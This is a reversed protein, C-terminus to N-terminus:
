RESPMVPDTLGNMKFATKRMFCPGCTGCHEEGGSYCSWSLEFPANVEAGLAVIEHKMLTGLPQEFEIRTYPKVAYPVLDQWRNIFEQENDPYGGGSEELNNGLVIKTFGHAESYAVALAMMVTNRAPVWEHGYEAGAAGDFGTVIDRSDDTLSSTAQEKFFSTSVLELPVDLVESLQKVSEYERSQAKAGYLFHLLTVSDGRHKCFAAAVTSDLGGSCVVLTKPPQYEYLSGCEVVGFASDVFGWTYPEIVTPAAEFIGNDFLYAKQSAVIVTRGDDVSQLWMPKYNAAYYLVTPDSEHVAVLAFSGQLIEVVTGFADVKSFNNAEVDLAIAIAETDITTRPEFFGERDRLAEIIEKDNAITGNHAIHWGGPTQFPQVDDFTKEEVWETTPEARRNGVYAGRAKFDPALNSGLAAQRYSANEKINHVGCSDRGRQASERWVHQLAASSVETADPSVLAGFIACM